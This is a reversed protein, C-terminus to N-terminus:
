AHNILIEFSHSVLDHVPSTYSLISIAAYKVTYERLFVSGVETEEAKLVTWFVSPFCQGQRFAAHAFGSIHGTKVRVRDTRRYMFDHVQCTHLQLHLTNIM